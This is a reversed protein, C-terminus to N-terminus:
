NFGGHDRGQRVATTEENTEHDWNVGGATLQCCLLWFSAKFVYSKDRGWAQRRCAREREIFGYTFQGGVRWRCGKERERCPWAHFTGGRQSKESRTIKGTGKRVRSQHYQDRGQEELVGPVARKLVKAPRSKRRTGAKSM